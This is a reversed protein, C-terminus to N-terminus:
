LFLIFICAGAFLGTMPATKGFKNFDNVANILYNDFYSSFLKITRIQNEVDTTGLCSVLQLMKEKEESKYLTFAEIEVRWCSRFDDYTTYKSFSQLYSLNKYASDNSFSKLIEALDKRTFKIEVSINSLLLITEEIASVRSKLQSSAKMGMM